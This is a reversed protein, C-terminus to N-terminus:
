RGLGSPYTLTTTTKMNMMYGQGVYMTGIDDIGYAPWYIEGANNKVLKIQPIISELAVTVPLNETPMYALMNWGTTLAVHASAVVIPTGDVRLTGLGTTFVQYAQGSHITGIDNIGQAPWYIQGSGNEVMVLNSLSGFIATASSDFPVVNLSVINWGARLPVLGQSLLASLSALGALTNKEYTYTHSIDETGIPLWTVAAHVEQAASSDWVRFSLTDGTVAGDIAPTQENDGWVTIVSNSVTNWRKAGVCLGSSTFVGIIDGAALANGNVTPVISTQVLISMSNGTHDTFTYHSQPMITVFSDLSSVGIGAYNKETVSWYYKTGHVLPAAVSYSPITTTSDNIIPSSLNSCISVKILYKDAAGGSGSAWSLTPTVIIDTAGAAPYVPLATGPLAVITTFTDVTYSSTATANKAAVKWYYKTNNLLCAGITYTLGSTSDNVITTAFTNNASVKVIYTDVSGGNSNSAWTVVPTICVHAANPAPSTLVPPLPPVAAVTIHLIVTGGNGYNWGTITYDAAVATHTPTGTIAGTITNFILGSPL